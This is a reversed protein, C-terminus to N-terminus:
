LIRKIVNALRQRLKPEAIKLQKFFYPQPKIGFKRIHRWILFAIQKTLAAESRSKTRRQTKVSYTSALGKRKVWAKLAALPNTQPDGSPGRLQSAVSELGAPISVKTKTGFELYGAYSYQAVIDFSTVNIQRSSISQKLRAEDTPADKKAGDRIEAATVKLENSLERQVTVPMKNFVGLVKDLGQVTFSFGTAM